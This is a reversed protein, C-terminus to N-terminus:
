VIAVAPGAFPQDFMGGIRDREPLWFVTLNSKGLFGVAAQSTNPPSQVKVDIASNAVPM